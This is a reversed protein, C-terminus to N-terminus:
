RSTTVPNQIRRHHASAHREMHARHCVDILTQAAFSGKMAPQHLKQATVSVRLASSVNRGVEADSRAGLVAATLEELTMRRQSVTRLRIGFETELAGANWASLSGLGLESDPAVVPRANAPRRRQRNSLLSRLADAARTRAHCFTPNQAPHAVFSPHAQSIIVRTEVM